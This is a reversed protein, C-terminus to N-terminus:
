TAFTIIPRIGCETAPYIDAGFWLKGNNYMCAGNDQGGYNEIDSIWYALPSYSDGSNTMNEIIWGCSSFDYYYNYNDSSGNYGYHSQILSMNTQKVVNQTTCKKIDSLSPLRVDVNTWDETIAVFDQNLNSGLSNIKGKVKNLNRDMLLNVVDDYVDIVYFFYTETSNVKCKYKDGVTVTGSGDSDSILTCFESFSLNVYYKTELIADLNNVIDFEIVEGTATTNKKSSVRLSVKPPETNVDFIEILYENSLDANEAFRRIFNEVFKEEEIRVKGTQRYYALDLADIMASETTEKFLNYNHQDTRTANAFFWIIGVALIGLVIIAYGWMSEKM